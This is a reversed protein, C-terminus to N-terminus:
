TLKGSRLYQPIAKGTLKTFAQNDYDQLKFDIFVADPAFEKVFRRATALVEAQNFSQIDLENIPAEFSVRVWGHQNALKITPTNWDADDFHRQKRLQKFEDPSIGFKEPETVVLEAHNKGGVDIITKSGPQYWLKIWHHGAGRTIQYDIALLKIRRYISM